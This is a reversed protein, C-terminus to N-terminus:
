KVDKKELAGQRVKGFANILRCLRRVSSDELRQLHMSKQDEPAMLAARNAALQIGDSRVVCRTALIAYAIPRSRDRLDAAKGERVNERGHRVFVPGRKSSPLCRQALVILFAAVFRVQESRSAELRTM